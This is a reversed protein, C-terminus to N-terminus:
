RLLRLLLDRIVPPQHQVPGLLTYTREFGNPGEVQMEWDATARSGVISVRWEGERDCLVHEIVAVIEAQVRQDGTNQMDVVVAMIQIKDPLQGFLSCDNCTRGPLNVRSM